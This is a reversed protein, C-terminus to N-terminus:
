KKGYLAKPIYYRRNNMVIGLVRSGINKMKEIAHLAVEWKTKECSITLVSASFHRSILISDSAGLISNGDIVVYDFGQILSEFKRSQPAQFLFRKEKSTNGITLLTLNEYATKQLIIEPSADVYLFDFFGPTVQAGFLTHLIPSRPNGDVLLVKSQSNITLAYAMQIATTSKGESNNCSTVYITKIDNGAGRINSEVMALESLNASMQEEFYTPLRLLTTSLSYTDNPEMIEEKQNM